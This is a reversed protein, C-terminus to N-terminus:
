QHVRLLLLWDLVVTVMPQELLVLVVEAEVM